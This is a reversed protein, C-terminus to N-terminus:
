FVELWLAVALTPALDYLDTVPTECVFHRCVYVTGSGGTIAAYGGRTVYSGTWTAISDYYIAIRGGGGSGSFQGCCLSCGGLGGYVHLSGSGTLTGANVRISGGSGGAGYCGVGDKGRAQISGNLELTGATIHVRGGGNGGPSASGSSGGGGSGLSLADEM